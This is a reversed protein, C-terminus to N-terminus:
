EGIDEITSVTAKDAFNAGHQNIIFNVKKSKRDLKQWCVTLEAKNYLKLNIAGESEKEIRRIEKGQQQVTFLVDKENAGSITYSIDVEQGTAANPTVLVCMPERTSLIMQLAYTQTMCVLALVALLNKM